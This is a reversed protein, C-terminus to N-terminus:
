ATAPRGRRRLVLAAALVLFAAIASLLLVRGTSVVPAEDASSTAPPTAPLGEEVLLDKLAIDALYWGGRTGETEFIEQGPTMYTVPGRKAYPYLDQAIKWTEANPGPVTYTVTYKPGLDGEPRSDLMPDPTRRFVAPYFGAWNAFDGLQTGPEETGSVNIGGGTGPGDISAGSPGKALATAPLALAAIALLILTRRM